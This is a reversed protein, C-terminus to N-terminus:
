PADVSGGLHAELRSWSEALLARLDDRTVIGNADIQNTGLPLLVSADQLIEASMTRLIEKLSDLAWVSGRAAHLIVVRKGAFAPDSVLWDLLNKFAGPLGHAYEPTSVVIVDAAAIALRLAAVPEPVSEGDLDPNFHPLLGLGAYHEVQAEVPALKEFATLIERNSSRARLSGCLTLVRM